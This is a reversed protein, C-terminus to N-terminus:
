FQIKMEFSSSGKPALIQKRYVPEFTSNRQRAEDWFVIMQLSDKPFRFGIGNMNLQAARVVQSNAIPHAGEVEPDEPLYRYMKTVMDREFRTGDEFVATGGIGLMEPMNHYRFAFAIGNDTENTVKTTVTVSTQAFHYITELQLGALVKVDKATLRRVLSLEVGDSVPVIGGIKFSSSLQSVSNKPFWFGPVAMVSMPHRVTLKKTGAQWEVIRGGKAPDIRLSYAPATVLLLNESVDLRVKNSEVPKIKTLDSVPNDDQTDAFYKKRYAAERLLAKRIAPLRKGMLDKM